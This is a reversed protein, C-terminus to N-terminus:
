YTGGYSACKGPGLRCLAQNLHAEAKELYHQQIEIATMRRAGKIRMAKKCTVDLAFTRLADLPTEIQVDGGPNVGAEAMAVILATTGCKLFMATESCLSEGCLIHLRNSGDQSLPENKTHFIGRDSTSDSSVVRSIYAVRPSLTFELGPSIPNFGGAGSFVLRSVIHPVIQPQLAAPNMRHLYSEHSGGTSGTGSYDVNCRFCMVQTGTPRVSEAARALDALIRHGAQVYRVVSWPDMCEPTSMEPHQGCDIYVRSGNELFMGGSSLDPLHVLRARAAEMMAHLVAERDVAAGDKMATVAYETQAGFRPHQENM